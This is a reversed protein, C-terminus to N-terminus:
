EYRNMENRTGAALLVGTRRYRLTRTWDGMANVAITAFIVGTVRMKTGKGALTAYCKQQLAFVRDAPYRPTIFRRLNKKANIVRTAATAPVVRASTGSSETAM